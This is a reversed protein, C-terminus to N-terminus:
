QFLTPKAEHHDATFNTLITKKVKPDTQICDIKNFISFVTAFYNKFIYITGYFRNKINKKIFYNYIRYVICLFHIFLIYIISQTEQLLSVRAFFFFISIRLRSVRRRLRQISQHFVKKNIKNKFVLKTRPFNFLKIMLLHWYKRHFIRGELHPESGSGPFIKERLMTFEMSKRHEKKNTHQGQM